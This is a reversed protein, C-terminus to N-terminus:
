QMDEETIRTYPRYRTPPVSDARVNWGRSDRCVWMRNPALLGADALAQVCCEAEDAQGSEQAVSWHENLVRVARDINSM